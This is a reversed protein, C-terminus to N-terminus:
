FMRLLLSAVDEVRGQLIFWVWAIGNIILLAIGERRSLKWGSRMLFATVLMQVTLYILSLSEGPQLRLPSAAQSVMGAVGLVGLVNFINSGLLNGFSIQEHGRVVAVISTVAEPASTGAAVITVGIAWPSLGAVTALDVSSSVLYQGGLVILLLGVLLVPITKWDFEGEPIEDEDFERNIFLYALYAILGFFMIAGEVRDLVNDRMFFILLLTSAVLVGGDRLVIKRSTTIATICVVTGLIFGMNFINSGVVNGISIASQQQVAAQVTVAFEPASTGMAVITLGIVMESMGIRRAIKSAAEVFWDAGFWLALISLIVIVIDILIETM